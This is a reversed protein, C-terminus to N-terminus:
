TTVGPNQGGMIYDNLRKIEAALEKFGDEMKTELPKLAAELDTKTIPQDLTTMVQVWGRAGVYSGDIYVVM